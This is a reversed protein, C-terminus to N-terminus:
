RRGRHRNRRRRPRRGAWPEAPRPARAARDHPLSAIWADIRARDNEPLAALVDGPDLVIPAEGRARAERCLPCDDFLTEFLRAREDPTLTAVAAVDDVIERAAADDPPAAQAAAVEDQTYRRGSRGIAHVEIVDDFVGASV